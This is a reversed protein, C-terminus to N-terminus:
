PIKENPLSGIAVIYQPRNGGSSVSVSTVFLLVIIRNGFEKAWRYSLFRLSVVIMLLVGNPAVINVTNTSGAVTCKILMLFKLSVNLHMNVFCNQAAQTPQHPWSRIISQFHTTMDSRSVPLIGIELNTMDQEVAFVM